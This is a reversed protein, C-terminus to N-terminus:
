SQKKFSYKKLRDKIKKKEDDTKNDWKKKWAWESKTLGQYKLPTGKGIRTRRSKPLDCTPEDELKTRINQLLDLPCINISCHSFRPCKRMIKLSDQETYKM